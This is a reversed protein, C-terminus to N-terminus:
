HQAGAAKLQQVAPLWALPFGYEVVVEQSRRQVIGVFDGARGSTVCRWWMQDIERPSSNADDHNVFAWGQRALWACYSSKGSAPVGSVILLRGM